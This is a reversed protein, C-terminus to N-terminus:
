LFFIGNDNAMYVFLACMRTWAMHGVCYHAEFLAHIREGINASMRYKALDTQKYKALKTLSEHWEDRSLVRATAERM